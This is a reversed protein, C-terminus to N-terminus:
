WGGLTNRGQSTPDPRIFPIGGPFPNEETVMQQVGERFTREWEMASKMHGDADRNYKHGLWCVGACVVDAYRSPIQLVDDGDTLNLIAKYYRFQIVYGRLPALTSDTPFTTGTILGSGPETWDTDIDVATVTQKTEPNETTSAYVHYQTYEVGAGNDAIPPQPARVTLLNSAPVFMRVPPDSAASIGGASDVFAVRVFYTRAALAGGLGVTVHPLPPGMTYEIGTSPAPYLTLVAPSIRSNRFQQPQSLGYSSDSKQSWLFPAEEFEHLEVMGTRSLVSGNTVEELDTINLGTDVQGDAQAGTPGIWYEQQGARTVFEQIGSKMWSWKRRRIIMKHIRDVYSVLVSTSGSNAYRDQTEQIACDVIDQVTTTTTLSGSPNSPVVVIMSSM